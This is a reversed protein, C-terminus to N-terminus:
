SPSGKCLGYGPYEYACVNVNFHTSLRDIIPAMHRVDCGNGHSYLITPANADIGRYYVPIVDVWSLHELNADYSCPPAPFAFPRFVSDRIGHSVSGLSSFLGGMLHKDLSAFPCLPLSLIILQISLTYPDQSRNQHLM